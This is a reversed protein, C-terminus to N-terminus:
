TVNANARFADQMGTRIQALRSALPGFSTRQSGQRTFGVHVHDTHPKKGHYPQLSPHKATWVQRNWIVEDIGVARACDMFASTLQDGLDKQEDVSVSLYIDLARGEAHHSKIATGAIFRDEYIGMRHIMALNAYILHRLAILGPQPGKWNPM